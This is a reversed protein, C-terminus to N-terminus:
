PSASATSPRRSVDNWQLEQHQLEEIRTAHTDFASEVATWLSKDLIAQAQLQLVIRTMEEQDISRHQSAAPGSADEALVRKPRATPPWAPGSVDEAMARKPRAMPAM